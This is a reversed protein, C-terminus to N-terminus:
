IAASRHRLGAADSIQARRLWGTKRDSRDDVIVWGNDDTPPVPIMRWGCEMGMDDASLPIKIDATYIIDCNIMETQRLESCLAAPSIDV